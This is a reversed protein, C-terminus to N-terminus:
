LTQSPDLGPARALQHLMDLDELATEVQEIDVPEFQPQPGPGVVAPPRSLWVALVAVSAAALPLVPKLSVPAVPRFLRRWWGLEAEAEVRRYLRRDFDPAVPMAEWVNLAEWVAKQGEVLARCSECDELHRELLAAREPELRRACYALIMEAGEGAQMPCYM